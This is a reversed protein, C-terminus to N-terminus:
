DIDKEDEEETVAQIQRLVAVTKNRPVKKSVEMRFGDGLIDGLWDGIPMNVECEYSVTVALGSVRVTIKLNKVAFLKKELLSEASLLAEEYAEQTNTFRNSSGRLAAAYACQELICRDYCYFSLFTMFVIVMIVFPLLLAAEVTFYGATKRYLYRKM